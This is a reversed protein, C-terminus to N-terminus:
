QAIKQPPHVIIFASLLPVCALLVTYQGLLSSMLGSIVAGVIFALTLGYYVLVGQRASPSDKEMWHFLHETGSRLNGTCMTTACPLGRITRFSQIQVASTFSIMINALFDLNDSPLISVAVLILCEVIIIHQRWHIRGSSSGIRKRLLEAALVGCAFALIPPLYHLAGRWDQQALRLALLVINGTEATAFVQGRCLYTYADLMGGALALLLGVALSESKQYQKM